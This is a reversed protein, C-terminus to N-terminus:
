VLSNWQPNEENESSNHSSSFEEEEMNEHLFEALEQEINPFTPRWYLFNNYNEAM